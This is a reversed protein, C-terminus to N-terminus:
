SNQIILIKASYKELVIVPKDNNFQVTKKSIADFVRYSGVDLTFIEESENNNIIVIAREKDTRREFAIINNKSELWSFTGRRLAESNKRILILNKYYSLLEKDWNEENWDMTRRCDPDEAGEMGIETGYYICPAGLYTFQFTSALKLSNKNKGSLTLFRATDHSDLLNFMVENAQQTQNMQIINIYNKFQTESISKNAFYQICNRTFPYNMVADLQDGMLWPLSYLWNEGVIYADPKVSKVTNRFARWFVHDVEDSVDLRWGDIDAEEIWFKAVGLLYERVIPNETNLKPMHTAFAFSDYNQGEKDFPWKHIHFWDFYPSAPGIKVVDQFPEFFYGSHNFVADLIIRIGKSHCKQVLEKLTSLDGFNPDIKFYDTTDYKHNTPAEFIPTLYIANIGLNELYDIKEIIGKLDGGFFSAAEPKSNWPSTNELNIDSDGINFREPFIQYFIADKVWQPVVHIETEHMYSYQFFQQHIEKENIAKFAGWETFYFKEKGKTLEFIYALRGHEPEVETAFYDYLEDSCVQQMDKLRKKNWEFKDGYILTVRDLDQKAARFRIHIKKLDYCYCYNSKPRHYLAHLNM